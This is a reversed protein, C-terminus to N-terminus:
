VDTSTKPLVNFIFANTLSFKGFELIITDEGFNGTSLSVNNKISFYKGLFMMSSFILTALLLLIFQVCRAVLPNCRFKTM